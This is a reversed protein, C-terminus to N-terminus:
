FDIVLNFFARLSLASKSNRMHFVRYISYMAVSFSVLFVCVYFFGICFYFGLFVDKERWSPTAAALGWSRARETERGGEGVLGDM